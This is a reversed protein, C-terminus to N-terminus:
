TVTRPNPDCEVWRTLNPPYRALHNLLKTTSSSLPLPPEHPSIASQRGHKDPLYHFPQSILLSALLNLCKGLVWTKADDVMEVGINLM